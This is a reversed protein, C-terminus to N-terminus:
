LADESYHLITCKLIHNETDLLTAPLVCLKSNPM